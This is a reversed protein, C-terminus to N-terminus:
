WALAGASLRVRDERLEEEYPDLAGIQRAVSEATAQNDGTVM